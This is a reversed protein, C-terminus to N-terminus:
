FCIAEIRRYLICQPQINKFVKSLFCFDLKFFRFNIKFFQNASLNIHCFSGQYLYLYHYHSQYQHILHNKHHSQLNHNHKHHNLYTNEPLPSVLRRFNLINLSPQCMTTSKRITKQQTQSLLLNIHITTITIGTTIQNNKFYCQCQQCMRSVQKHCQRCMDLAVVLRQVILIILIPM